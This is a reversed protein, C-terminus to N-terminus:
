GNGTAGDEGAAPQRGAATYVTRARGNAYRSSGAAQAEEMAQRVQEKMRDRKSVQQQYAEPSMLLQRSTLETNPVKIM